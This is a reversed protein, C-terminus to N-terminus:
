RDPNPIGRPPHFRVVVHPGARDHEHAILDFAGPYAARLAIRLDALSRNFLAEDAIRRAFEALEDRQRFRALVHIAEFGDASWSIRVSGDPEILM